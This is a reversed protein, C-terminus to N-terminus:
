GCFDPNAELEFCFGSGNGNKCQFTCDKPDREQSQYMIILSVAFIAVMLFVGTAVIADGNWSAGQVSSDQMISKVLTHVEDPAMSTVSLMNILKNIEKAKAPNVKQVENVAFSVLDQNSVGESQLRILEHTFKQNANKYANQDKQDWETKLFFELEDFAQRVGTPSSATAQGILICFSMVLTFFVKM